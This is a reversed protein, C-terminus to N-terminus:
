GRTSSVQRPIVTRTRENFELPWGDADCGRVYGHDLAQKHSNHCNACLTQWNDEDWFLRMDGRHPVRHDVVNGRILEGRKRHDECFPHKRLFVARAKEWARTYGRDRPGLRQTPAKKV